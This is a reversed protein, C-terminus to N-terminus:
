PTESGLAERHKRFFLVGRYPLLSSRQPIEVLSIVATPGHAATAAHGRQTREVGGVESMPRRRRCPLETGCGATLLHLLM